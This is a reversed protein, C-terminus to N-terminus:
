RTKFDFAENIEENRMKLKDATATKLSLWVGALIRSIKGRLWGDM